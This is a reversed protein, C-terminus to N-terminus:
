NIFELLLPLLGQTNTSFGEMKNEPFYINKTYSKMTKWLEPVNDM